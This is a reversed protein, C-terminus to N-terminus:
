LRINKRIHAFRIIFYGMGNEDHLYDLLAQNMECLERAVYLGLGTGSKHTTYFPEFVKEVDSPDIGKGKDLIILHPKENDEQAIIKVWRKGAAEESYRLANDILNVLVQTLQSEDFSVYFEDSIELEFEANIYFNNSSRIKEIVNALNIKEPTTPGRRSIDLVNNIISNIRKTHNNIMGLLRIDDDHIHESEMLLQSAHSIANLPNRIEHAISASLRGLSSLKIHQAQQNLVSQNDIFIITDGGQKDVSSFSAKIAPLGPKDRFPEGNYNDNIKWSELQEHLKGTIEGELRLPFGLLDKAIDNSLQIKDDANIVIIGTQMRQVISENLAGLSRAKEVNEEVLKETSRIYRSVAQIILSTAFFLIGILGAPIFYKSEETNISTVYLLDLLMGIIAVAALFFAASGNFFISGITIPALMLIPLGSKFGGCLHTFAIGFGIDILIAAFITSKQPPLNIYSTYLLNTLSLSFYIVVTILFADTEYNGHLMLTRDAISIGGLSVALLTRFSFYIISLKYEYQQNANM